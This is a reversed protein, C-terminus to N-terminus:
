QGDFTVSWDSCIGSTTDCTAHLIPAPMAKFACVYPRRNGDDAGAPACSYASPLASGIEQALQRGLHPNVTVQVAFSPGGGVNAPGAVSERLQSEFARSGAFALAQPVIRRELLQQPLTKTSGCGTLVLSAVVVSAVQAAM